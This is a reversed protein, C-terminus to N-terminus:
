RRLAARRHSRVPRRGNKRTVEPKTPSAPQADQPRLKAMWARTGFVGAALGAVSFQQDLTPWEVATGPGLVRVKALQADSAKALGQLHVVPIQLNTGNSLTLVVRRTRRDYRVRTAVPQRRLEENGRATAAAIQRNLEARDVAFKGLKVKAM